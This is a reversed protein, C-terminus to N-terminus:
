QAGTQQSLWANQANMRSLATEMAIFQKYYRDEVMTLRDTADEIREDLRKIQEGILSSDFYGNFGETGAKEIVKKVAINLKDYVKAVIGKRSADYNSGDAYGLSALADNTPGSNLTFSHGGPSSFIIKNDSSLSAIVQNYGFKDVIKDNIEKTLGTKGEATALDYTGSLTITQTVGNLTLRFDKAEVDVVGSLASGKLDPPNFSFFSMVEDPNEAIAKKLKDENIHLKGKERRDGTTIGFEWVQNFKESLGPIEAYISYRLERIVGELVAEGGVLGSKAKEEWLKIDSEEMEKKQEDTLPQYAYEKEESLKKNIKDITENYKDIFAKIKDFVGDVDRNVTVTKEVGLDENLLTINLGQLTFSNSSMELDTFTVGNPDTFTIKANEGATVPAADLGIKSLFDSAGNDITDLTTIAGTSDRRLIFRDQMEDYSLTVDADANANVENILERLTKTSDIQFQVGNITFDAKGAEFTLGGLKTQLDQLKTDLSIHSQQWNTFQLQALADETGSNIIINPNFTGEATTDVPRFILQNGSNAVEIQNAGFMRDIKSQLGAVLEGINAYTPDSTSWSITKQVGNFSLKFDKGRLDLAATFDIDANSQLEKSISGTSKKQAASALNSVIIKYTGELAQTSATATVVSSDSSSINFAQYSSSLKMNFAETRLAMLSSNIDRFIEQQWQYIQKQQKLKNIPAREVKMLDQIMTEYDIGSALGSLRMGAM